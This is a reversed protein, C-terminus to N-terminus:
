VHARGIQFVSSRLLLLLWQDMRSRRSLRPPSPELFDVASFERIERPRKRILHFLIPGLVALGALLYVPTLFSM